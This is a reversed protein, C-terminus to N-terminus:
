TVAMEIEYYPFLCLSNLDNAWSWVAPNPGVGKVMMSLAFHSLLSAESPSSTGTGDRDRSSMAPQRKGPSM